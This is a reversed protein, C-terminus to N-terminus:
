RQKKLVVRNFYEERVKAAEQKDKYFGLHIQKQNITIRAAWKKIDKRFSVGTVGSTNSLTNANNKFYTCIRLNSRRNDLPNHNIHDVIKNKPANVIWRHLLQKYFKGDIKNWFVAYFLNSKDKKIYLKINNKNIYDEIDKDLLVEFDGYVSNHVRM